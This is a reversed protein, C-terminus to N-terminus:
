ERLRSEADFRTSDRLTRIAEVACAMPDAWVESREYRVVLYGEAQLEIDRQRDKISEDHTRGGRTLLVAMHRESSAEKIEDDDVREYSTHRYWLRFDCVSRGVEIDCELTLEPSLNERGPVFALDRPFWHKGDKDVVKFAGVDCGRVGAVVLAPFLTRQTETELLRMAHNLKNAEASAALTVLDWAADVARSDVPEEGERAWRWDELAPSPHAELAAAFRDTWSQPRRKM